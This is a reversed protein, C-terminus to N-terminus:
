KKSCGKSGLLGSINGYTIKPLDDDVVIIKHQSFSAKVVQYLHELHVLSENEAEVNINFLQM